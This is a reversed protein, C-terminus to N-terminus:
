EGIRLINQRLSIPSGQLRSINEANGPDWPPIDSPKARWWVGDGGWKHTVLSHTARCGNVPYLPVPHSPGPPHKGPVPVACSIYWSSRNNSPKTALLVLQFNMFIWTTLCTSRSNSRFPRFHITATPLYIYDVSSTIGDCFTLSFFMWIQPVILKTFCHLEVLFHIFVLWLWGNGGYRSPAENM